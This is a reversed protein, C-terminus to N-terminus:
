DVHTKVDVHKLIAKVTEALLDTGGFEMGISKIKTSDIEHQPRTREGTIRSASGSFEKALVAVEFQSVYRDYCSYVEGATNRHTLLKRISEAVDRAHVEKGGRECHVDQQQVIKAILDYWKSKGPEHHLGYVGTPRVACIDFGQGFGYSHVFKEIAAKHAGYHTKPWLPHAEDLKRDGLINEHVACTSVFIFKKAGAAIASEILKLSGILNTEVFKVIDGEEGQFRKGPKWFANHIVAECDKVLDAATQGDQLDGNVWELLPDGELAPPLPTQPRRWCNLHDGQSRFNEIIYRGIFGTGGTLAIKM